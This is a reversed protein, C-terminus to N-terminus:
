PLFLHNYCKVEHLATQYKVCLKGLWQYSSECLKVSESCQYGNDSSGEPRVLLDHKKKSLM